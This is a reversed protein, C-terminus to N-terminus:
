KLEVGPITLTNAAAEDGNNQVWFAEGPQFTVGEVFVTVDDNDVWGFQFAGDIRKRVWNYMKKGSGDGKLTQLFIQDKASEPCIIDQLDLAVPTCNACIKSNTDTDLLIALDEVMVQGSTLFTNVGEEGNNQVWFGDGPEFTVGEAFVTVDDNDVWGFQFAGDIRKRVWNYM